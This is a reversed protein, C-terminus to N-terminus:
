STKAAKLKLDDFSKLDIEPESIREHLWEAAPRLDSRPFRAKMNLLAKEARKPEKLKVAYIYAIRLQADDALDDQPFDFAIRRLVEIQGRENPQMDVVEWLRKASDSVGTMADVQEAYIETKYKARMEALTYNYTESIKGGMKVRRIVDDRVEELSLPVGGEREECYVIHWGKSSKIAPSTQGKELKLAETLFEIDKGLGLVGEEVSIFGLAGGIEKTNADESYRRAMEQFPAGNLLQKLVDEAQERTSLQIHRAAIRVPKTYNQKYKEYFEVIEQETPTTKPEVKDALYKTAMLQTKYLYADRSINPDKDYGADEAAKGWVVQDVLAALAIQVVDPNRRNTEANEKSKSAETIRAEVQKETIVYDGVRALVRSGDPSAPVKGLKKVQQENDCGGLAVVVLIGWVGRSTISM